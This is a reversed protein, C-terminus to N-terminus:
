VIIFDSAVLDDVFVNRLRLSDLGFDIVTDAGIQFANFLVDAFTDVGAVAIQIRDQGFTFDTVVDDNDGTNFFFRDFGTGGVLTDNGRGGKVYDNGSDGRVSDNGDGGFLNDNGIGGDLYDNDLGGDLRDAQAGGYLVDNGSEGFLIDFGSGGSLLDAGTGGYLDDDFFGGYIRDNGGFGFIILDDVTSFNTGIITNAFINGNITLAMTVEM